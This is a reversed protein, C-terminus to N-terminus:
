YVEQQYCKECYVIEPREPSYGTKFEEGCPEDGHIHKVTNNYVGTMDKEGNCMCPRKYLQIKLRDGIRREHRCENCLSPVPINEKKYFLFENELIRYANKCNECELVEKLIDEGTEDISDPLESTKKTIEYEGRSVEIWKYNRNIAEEKTLPFHQAAVTNNYGLLSFEIPFFEGYKYVLGCTDIYPMEDM